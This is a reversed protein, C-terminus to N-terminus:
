KLIRITDEDIFQVDQGLSLYVFKTKDKQFEFFTKANTWGYAGCYGWAPEGKAEADALVKDNPDITYRVAGVASAPIDLKTLECNQQEETGLKSVFLRKLVAEDTEDGQKYFVTMVPYQDASGDSNVLKNDKWMYPLKTKDEGCTQELFQVGLEENKIEQWSCGEAPARSPIISGVEAFSPEAVNQNTISLLGM